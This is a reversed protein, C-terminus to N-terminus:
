SMDPRDIWHGGSAWFDVMTKAEELTDYEDGWHELGPGCGERDCTVYKDKDKRVFYEGNVYLMGDDRVM